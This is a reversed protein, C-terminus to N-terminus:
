TLEYTMINEVSRKGYGEVEDRMVKYKEFKFKEREWVVYKIEM